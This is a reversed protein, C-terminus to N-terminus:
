IFKPKSAWSPFLRFILCEWTWSCVFMYIRYTDTSTIFIKLKRQISWASLLASGFVAWRFFNHLAIGMCIIHFINVTSWFIGESWSMISTYNFSTSRHRIVQFSEYRLRWSWTVVLQWRAYLYFSSVFITLLITSPLNRSLTHNIRLLVYRPWSAIIDDIRLINLPYMPRFSHLRSECEGDSRFICSCITYVFLYARAGPWM